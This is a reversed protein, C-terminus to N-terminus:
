TPRGTVTSIEWKSTPPIAGRLVAMGGVLLPLLAMGTRYPLLIGALM